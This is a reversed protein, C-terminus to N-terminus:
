QGRTGLFYVTVMLLVIALIGGWAVINLRTLSELRRWWGILSPM